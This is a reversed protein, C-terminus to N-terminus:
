ATSGASRVTHPAPRNIQSRRMCPSVVSRVPGVLHGALIAVQAIKLIIFAPM